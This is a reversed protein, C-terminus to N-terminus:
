VRHNEITGPHIVDIRREIIHPAGAARWEAVHASRSHASLADRHEWREIFTLDDPDTISQYLDYSICGSEKRTEAVCRRAADLLLPATGPRIILHAIVVIM